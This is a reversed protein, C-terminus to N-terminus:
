PYTEFNPYWPIKKSSGSGRLYRGNGALLYRGDNSYWHSGTRSGSKSYWHSGTRSGSESFWWSIYNTYQANFVRVFGSTSTNNRDPKCEKIFKIM